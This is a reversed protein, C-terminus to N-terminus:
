RSVQDFEIPGIERQSTGIQDIQVKHAANPRYDNSGVNFEDYVPDYTIPIGAARLQAVSMYHDKASSNTIRTLELVEFRDKLLEVISGIRVNISTSTQQFEIKGAVRGDIRTVLSSRIDLGFKAGASMDEGSKIAGSKLTPVFESTRGATQQLAKPSTRAVNETLDLDSASAPNSAPAPVFEASAAVSARVGEPEPINVNVQPMEPAALGIADNDVSASYSIVALDSIAATVITSPEVTPAIMDSGSQADAQLDSLTLWDDRAITLEADDFAAQGVSNLLVIAVPAIEIEAPRIAEVKLTLIEPPRVRPAALATELLSDNKSVSIPASIPVAINATEAERAKMLTSGYSAVSEHMAASRSLASVPDSRVVTAQAESSYSYAAISPDMNPKPVQMGHPSYPVLNALTGTEGDGGLSLGPTTFMITAIAAGPLVRRRLTGASSAQISIRLDGLRESCASSYSTYAGM